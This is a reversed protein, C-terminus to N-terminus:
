ASTLCTQCVASAFTLASGWAIAEQYVNAEASIPFNTSGIAVALILAAGLLEPM